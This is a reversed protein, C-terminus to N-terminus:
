SLWSSILLLLAACKAEMARVFDGSAFESAGDARSETRGTPVEREGEDGCTSVSDEDTSSIATDNLDEGNGEERRFFDM